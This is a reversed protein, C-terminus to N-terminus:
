YSKKAPMAKPFPLAIGAFFDPLTFSKRYWGTGGPLFGSEAEGSTTFNQSISYDHPVSVLTWGSDDYATNQANSVDGLNFRWGDNFSVTRDGSSSLISSAAASSATQISNNANAGDSITTAFVPSVSVATLLALVASLLRRGPHSKM